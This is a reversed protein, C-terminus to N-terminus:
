NRNDKKSSERWVEEAITDSVFRVSGDGFTVNVDGPHNSQASLIGVM